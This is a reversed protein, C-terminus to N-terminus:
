SLSLKQWTSNQVRTATSDWVSYKLWSDVLPLPSFYLQNICFCQILVVKNWFEREVAYQHVNNWLQVIQKNLMYNKAKQQGWRWMFLLFRRIRFRQFKRIINNHEQNHKPKLVSFSNSCFHGAQDPQVWSSNTINRLCYLYRHINKSNCPGLLGMENLYIPFYDQSVVTCTRTSGTDRTPSFSLVATSICHQSSFWLLSLLFGM